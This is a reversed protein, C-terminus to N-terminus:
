LKKFFIGDSLVSTGNVQVDQVKGGSGAPELKWLAGDYYFVAGIALEQEDTYRTTSASGDYQYGNPMFNNGASYLANTGAEGLPNACYLKHEDDEWFYFWDSISDDAKVGVCKTFGFPNTYEDLAAIGLIDHEEILRGDMYGKIQGSVGEYIDEISDYGNNELYNYLSKHEGMEATPEDIIAKLEIDMGAHVFNGLYGTFDAALSGVRYYDGTKYTYPLEIPNSTPLGTSCDWIALFRGINKLNSIETYLEKGMNASLPKEVATSNVNNVVDEPSLIGTEEYIGIMTSDNYIVSQLTKEALQQTEVQFNGTTQTLLWYHDVRMQAKNFVISGIGVASADLIVFPINNDMMIANVEENGQIRVPNQGIIMEPTVIIRPIDFSSALLENYNYKLEEDDEQVIINMERNKIDYVVSHTSQWTGFYEEEPNRTRHQYAYKAAAIAAEFDAAGSEVTLNGDVFETCWEGIEADGGTYANTYRLGHAMFDAMSDLSNLGSYADVMKAYRELGCGHDTVGNTIKANHTADNIAPYYTKGNANFTVGYLYFNTMMPKNTVDIVRVVNDVIELVYTKKEDAIMFHLEYNMDELTKVPYITVYDRIYEAAKYADDFNDLVYRILGLACVSEKKEILPVSKTITEGKDNPVVNISMAVQKENM